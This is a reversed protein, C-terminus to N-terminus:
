PGFGTSSPHPASAQSSTFQTAVLLLPERSRRARAILVAGEAIVLL